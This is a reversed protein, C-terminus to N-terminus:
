GFYSREKKNDNSVNSPKKMNGLIKRFGPKAFVWKDSVKKILDGESKESSDIELDLSLISLDALTSYIDDIIKRDETSMTRLYPMYMRPANVPNILMELFTMSNVIKEMMLKRIAKLLSDSDKDFKEIEFDSNLENFKPLNYKKSLKEYEKKMDELKM